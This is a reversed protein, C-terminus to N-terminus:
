ARVAAEVDEMTMADRDAMRVHQFRQWTRETWDVYEEPLRTGARKAVMARSFVSEVDLGSQGVAIQVAREYIQAAPQELTCFLSDVGMESNYALINLLFATKGVGARAMIWLTEGPALGRMAEDLVPLGLTV